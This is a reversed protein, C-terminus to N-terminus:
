RHLEAAAEIRELRLDEVEDQARRLAEQAQRQIGVLISSMDLPGVRLVSQMGGCGAPPDDLLALVSRALAEADRAAAMREALTPYTSGSM